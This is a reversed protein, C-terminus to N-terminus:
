GKVKGSTRVASWAGYYKVGGVARYVRAQVEYRKGKKLKKVVLSVTAASVAKTNWSKVGRAKWRVEYRTIKEAKPAASWKVTLSKKGAKVSSIKVAKPVIRFTATATKGYGGNGVITVTGKGINKNAGTSAVTYDSGLTLAKGNVSVVFGSAIKKGTWVRDAVTVKVASLDTVVATETSKTKDDDDGGNPNNTIDASSNFRAVATQLAALAADIEAQTADAKDLVVRAATVAAKLAAYAAASKNGQPM